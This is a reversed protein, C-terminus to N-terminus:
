AMGHWYFTFMYVGERDWIVMLDIFPAPAFQTQCTM